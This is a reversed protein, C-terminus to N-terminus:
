QERWDAEWTNGWEDGDKRWTVRGRVVRDGRVAGDYWATMGASKGTVDERVFMARTETFKVIHITARSGDEWEADYHDGDLTWTGCVRATWTECERIRPPAQFGDDEDAHRVAVACAAATAALASVMALRLFRNMRRETFM